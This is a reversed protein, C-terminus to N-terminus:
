QFTQEHRDCYVVERAYDDNVYTMVSILIGSRVSSGHLLQEPANIFEAEVRCRQSCLLKFVCSAIVFRLHVIIGWGGRLGYETGESKM